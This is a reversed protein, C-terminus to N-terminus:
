YKILINGLIDRIIDAVLGENDHAFEIWRRNSMLKIFHKSNPVAALFESISNKLSDFKYIYALVVVDFLTEESLNKVIHEVCLDKFLINSLFIVDFGVKLGEIEYKDAAKFLDISISDLDDLKGLYMFKIVSEMDSAKIDKIEIIGTQAEVCNSTLFM